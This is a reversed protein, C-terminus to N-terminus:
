KSAKNMNYPECNDGIIVMSYKSDSVHLKNIRTQQAQINLRSLYRQDLMKQGYIMIIQPMLAMLPLTGNGYFTNQM